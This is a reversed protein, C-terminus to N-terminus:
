IKVYFLIERILKRNRFIRQNRNESLNKLGQPLFTGTNQKVNVTEARSIQSQTVM